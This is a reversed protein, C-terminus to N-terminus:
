CTVNRSMTVVPMCVHVYLNVHVYCNIDVIYDKYFWLGTPVHYLFQGVSLGLSTDTLYFLCWYGGQFGLVDGVVNLM